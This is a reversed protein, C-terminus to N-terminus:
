NTKLENYLALINNALNEWSAIKKYKNINEVFNIKHKLQFFQEITEAIKQPEPKEIILGSNYDALMEKLGGVDTAVVPLDFHYSIGVIGSQTASKYPLVCLDSASFFYPVEFDNIYRVFLKVKENLHNEDIIKQYKEFNGYSEGAVLLLYENSLYKMAELLLDLGKYDRIFGFFLLIKKDIPINLKECAEERTIKEGFHNYLPHPILRFNPNKIFKQLDELVAQSMVIYGHFQKLFFSTLQNEFPRKEHSIVNDLIAINIINKKKLKKAVYGLSPAFFSMWYKTLFMQPQYCLIKRATKVYSIPNISDLLPISNVIDANDNEEVFQTKGPFLFNPYQRTFTFPFVEINIKQFAKLLASNFQAIGGRFPYFTSLFAVKM